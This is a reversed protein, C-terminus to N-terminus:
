GWLRLAIGFYLIRYKRITTGRGFLLLLLFFFPESLKLWFQFAYGLGHSGLTRDRMEAFGHLLGFFCLLALSFFSAVFIYFIPM